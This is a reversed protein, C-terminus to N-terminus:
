MKEAAAAAGRHQARLREDATGAGEHEACRCALPHRALTKESRELIFGGSTLLLTAISGANRLATTVTAVPDLIGRAAIDACDLREADFGVNPDIDGDLRRLVGKVDVGANAAIQRLPQRLAKVLIDTGAREEVTSRGNDATTSAARFLAVGGGTVVGETLASRAARLACEFRERRERREVDTAGGVRITAVGAALRALRIRLIKEDLPDAARAATARLWRCRARVAEPNGGGSIVMTRSPTIRVREARGLDSANLNRSGGSAPALLVHGGTLAALDDLFDTRRGAFGPSKVPVVKLGGRERSAVLMALAEVGFDSAVILLPRKAAIATDLAPLWADLRDITTDCLLILPRVLEISPTAGVSQSADPEIFARSAYGQDFQMGLRREVSDEITKGDEFLIVGDAGASTLEGAVTRGIWPDGNAAVTAVQRLPKDGEIRRAAAGVKRLAIAIGSEIAQGLALPALGAATAAFGEIMLSHAVTAATTAGDGATAATGCAVERMLAAGMNAYRDAFHISDAVVAGDKTIRPRGTGDDILVHRGRPGLTVKVARAVGCAGHILRTQADDGLRLTGLM